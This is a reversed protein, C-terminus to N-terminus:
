EWRLKFMIADKESEFWYEMLTDPGHWSSIDSMDVYERDVASQCHAQLWSAIEKDQEESLYGIVVKFIKIM